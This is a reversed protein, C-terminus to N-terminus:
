ADEESGSQPIAYQQLSVMPINNKGRIPYNGVAYHEPWASQTPKSEHKLTDHANPLRLNSQIIDYNQWDNALNNPLNQVVISNSYDPNTSAYEPTQPNSFFILM